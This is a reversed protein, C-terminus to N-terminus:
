VAIFRCRRDRRQFNAKGGTTATSHNVSAKSARPIAARGALGLLRQPQDGAIDVAQALHQVPQRDAHHEDARLQQHLEAVRLAFANEPPRGVLDQAAM